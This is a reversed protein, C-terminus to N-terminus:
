EVAGRAKGKTHASRSTQGPRTASLPSAPRRCRLVTVLFNETLPRFFFIRRPAINKLYHNGYFRKIYLKRTTTIFYKDTLNFIRLQM